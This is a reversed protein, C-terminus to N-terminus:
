ITVNVKFGVCNGFPPAPANGSAGGGGTISDYDSYSYWWSDYKDHCTIKVCYKQIEKLGYIVYYNCNQQDYSLDKDILRTSNVKYWPGKTDIAIWVDYTFEAGMKKWLINIMSVGADVFFFYPYQPMVTTAIIEPRYGYYRILPKIGYPLNEEVIEAIQEDSFSEKLSWPLKVVVTANGPHIQGEYGSVGNYWQAQANLKKADEYKEEIIGGGNERIDLVVADKPGHSPNIALDALLFYGCFISPLTTPYGGYNALEETGTRVTETTFEDTFNVLEIEAGVSFTATPIITGLKITTATKEVFNMYRWKGANDKLRLWGSKPFTSTSVVDILLGAAITDATTVITTARWSYHLGIAGIIGWGASQALAVDEAIDPNNGDGNQSISDILGSPNIKVWQISTMQAGLNNNASSEPILYIARTQIHAQNDFLPNMNLSSTEYYIEEYTYTAFYDYSDKLDANLAVIGSLGDIGIILNSWSIANGDSDIVRNNDFDRYDTGIKTTDNTIAYQVIGEYEILIDVPYLLDKTTIKEHPIKILDDSVKKCALKNARKYPQIPNFAQNEFEPINYLNSVSIVNNSPDTGSVAGRFKGNIVRLFWPLSNDLVAPKNVKIRRHEEYKISFKNGTPLRLSFNDLLYVRLWPKVGLTVPWIDETKAQTYAAENNLLTTIVNGNDTYQIYYVEYEGTKNNYSSKLSNYVHCETYIVPDIPLGTTDDYLKQLEAFYKNISVETMNKDFIRVSGIDITKPLIHKYYLPFSESESDKFIQTVLFNKNKVDVPQIYGTLEQVAEPRANAHLSDSRDGIFLINEPTSEKSGVYALKVTDKPLDELYLIDAIRKKINQRTSNDFTGAVGTVTVQFGLSTINSAM